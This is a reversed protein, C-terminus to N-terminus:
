RLHIYVKNLMKSLLDKIEVDFERRLPIFSVDPSQIVNILESLSNYEFPDELQILKYFIFNLVKYFIHIWVGSLSHCWSVLYGFSIFTKLHVFYFFTKWKFLYNFINFYKILFNEM